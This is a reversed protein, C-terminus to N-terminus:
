RTKVNLKHKEFVTGERIALQALAKNYDALAQVEASRATTLDRQLQIVIFSTSRGNELKTQEAELAGDAFQRAERTAGVRDFNTQALKVADEIQLMISQELQQLKVLAQQQEAKSINYKNRATGNGLPISVVAGYSYSPSEGRRIDGLAGSYERQTGSFGYSGVLDLQPYLQNRTYRLVYGLREIDLKAQLFDPRQALGKRWSSQRDLAARPASMEDVPEILVDRWEAMNDSLLGKMVNQQAALLNQAVLLVARRAAVQSEAQKEDLPALVGQEVRHKNADLLEQALKLAEEQVGVNQQALKLDYYALEVSTVTNMIQQRLSLESIDLLKRSVLINLRAEDIWSNRLLPQRLTISASGVSDEADFPGRTRTNSIDGGLEYSMGTPLAGIIGTRFEDRNTTVGVLSTSDERANQFGHHHIGSGGFVPEFRAKALDLDYRALEPTFREIKVDLNHELAIQICDKLSLPRVRFGTQAHSSVGLALTLVAVLAFGRNRMALRQVLKLDSM